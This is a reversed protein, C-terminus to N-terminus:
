FSAWSLKNCPILRVKNKTKKSFNGTNNNMSYTMFIDFYRIDSNMDIGAIGTM